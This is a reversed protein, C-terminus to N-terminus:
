PRVYQPDEDGCLDTMRRYVQEAHPSNESIWVKGEANSLLNGNEQLEFYRPDSMMDADASQAQLKLLEASMRHLSILSGGAAEIQEITMGSSIDSPDGCTYIAARAASGASGDEYAYTGNGIDSPSATAADVAQITKTNLDYFYVQGGGRSNGGSTLLMIGIAIVLLVVSIITASASNKNLYERISM